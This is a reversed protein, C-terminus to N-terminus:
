LNSSKVKHTFKYLGFSSHSTIDQMSDTGSLVSWSSGFNHYVEAELPHDKTYANESGNNSQLTGTLSKTESTNTLKSLWPAALISSSSSKGM